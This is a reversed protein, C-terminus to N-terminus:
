ILCLIITIYVLLVIAGLFREDLTKEQEPTLPQKKM